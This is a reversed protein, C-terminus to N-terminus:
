KWRLLWPLYRIEVSPKIRNPKSLDEFTPFNSNLSCTQGPLCMLHSWKAGKGGFGGAGGYPFPEVMEPTADTNGVSCRCCTDLRLGWVSVKFGLLAPSKLRSWRTWIFPFSSSKQMVFLPSIVHRINEPEKCCKSLLINACLYHSLEKM